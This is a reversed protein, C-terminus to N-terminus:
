RSLTGRYSSVAFIKLRIEVRNKLTPTPVKSPTQSRWIFCIRVLQLHMTSFSIFFHWFYTSTFGIDSKYYTNKFIQFVALFWFIDLFFQNFIPQTLSMSSQLWNWELDRVTLWKLFWSDLGFISLFKNVPKVDNKMPRLWPSAGRFMCYSLFSCKGRIKKKDWLTRQIVKYFEPQRVLM